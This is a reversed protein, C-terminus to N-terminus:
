GVADCMTRSSAILGAGFVVAGVVGPGVHTVDTYGVVGHVGIAAGFGVLAVAVLTQWLSRSHDALAVCCTVLLGTVFIAGGFGARDHAMLPVLRPNIQDIQASSLGMFSLDQPVFVNTVGVSMIVLGALALGTSAALLLRTGWNRPRGARRARRLVAPLDRPSQLTTWSRLLGVVFFPLLALTGAGHWTDLYGYGLYLLFTAFGLVGSVLLVWWAWAARARLPFEALWVYLAGIALLAGGFAVRDHIMFDVLRCAQLRCLEETTMGLYAVDQPLLLGAMSLFIAFGGAFALSVGVLVVLGRGDGVLAEFLGRDDRTQAGM